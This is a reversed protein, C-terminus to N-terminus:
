PWNTSDSYYNSGNITAYARGVAPNFTYTVAGLNKYKAPPQPAATLYGGTVLTAIDAPYANNKAYYVAAASDITRLDAKMKSLNASDTTDAFRPVAIAALIGIIAVVVMLEVLTFGKQGKMAKRMNRLM